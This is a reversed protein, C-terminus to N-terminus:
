QNLQEKANWNHSPLRSNSFWKCGDDIWHQRWIKIGKEKNPYDDLGFQFGCCPCIEDSGYGDENYPPDFLESYNCVPCKNNM